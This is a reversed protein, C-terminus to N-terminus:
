AGQAQVVTGVRREGYGARLFCFLFVKIERMDGLLFIARSDM